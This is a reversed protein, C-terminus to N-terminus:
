PGEKLEEELGRLRYSRGHVKLMVSKDLLRDLM